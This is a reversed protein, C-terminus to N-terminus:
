DMQCIIWDTILTQQIFRDFIPHVEDSDNRRQSSSFPFLFVELDSLREGSNQNVALILLLGILLEHLLVLARGLEDELVTSVAQGVRYALDATLNEGVVGRIGDTGFLKGM